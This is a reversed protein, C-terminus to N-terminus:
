QRADPVEGEWVLSGRVPTYTTCQVIPGTRGLSTCCVDQMSGLQPSGAERFWQFIDLISLLPSTGGVEGM